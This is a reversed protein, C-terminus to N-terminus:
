QLYMRDSPHQITCVQPSRLGLWQVFNHIEAMSGFTLLSRAYEIILTSLCHVAVLGAFLGAIFIVVRRDGSWLAVSFILPFDSSLICGFKSSRLALLLSQPPSSTHTLGFPTVICPISVSAWIGTANTIKLIWTQTDCPIIERGHSDITLALVHLVMSVKIFATLYGIKPHYHVITGESDCLTDHVLTGTAKWACYELRISSYNSSRPQIPSLLGICQSPLSSEWFVIGVLM